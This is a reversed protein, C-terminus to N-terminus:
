PPARRRSRPDLPSGGGEAHAACEAENADHRLGIARTAEGDTAYRLLLAEAPVVRLAFGRSCSAATRAPTRSGAHGCRQREGSGEGLVCRSRPSRRMGAPHRNAGAEGEAARPGSLRARADRKGTVRPISLSLSRYSSTGPALQVQASPGVTGQQCMLERLQSPFGLAGGAPWATHSQPPLRRGSSLRGSSPCHGAPLARGPRGLLPPGSLEMRRETLPRLLRAILAIQPCAAEGLAGISSATPSASMVSLRWPSQLPLVFSRESCPSEPHMTGAFLREGSASCWLERFLEGCCCRSGRAGGEERRRRRREVGIVPVTVGRRRKETGNGATQFAAM